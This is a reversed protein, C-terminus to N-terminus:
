GNVGDVYAGRQRGPGTTIDAPKNRTHSYFPLRVKTVKIGEAPNTLRTSIITSTASSSDGVRPAPPSPAPPPRPAPKKVVASPQPVSVLVPGLESAAEEIIEWTQGWVMMVWVFRPLGEELYYEKRVSIIYEDSDEATELLKVLVDAWVELDKVRFLIKLAPANPDKEERIFEACTGSFYKEFM